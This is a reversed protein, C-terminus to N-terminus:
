KNLGRLLCELLPLFKAEWRWARSGQPTVGAEAGLLPEPAADALRGAGATSHVDKHTMHALM